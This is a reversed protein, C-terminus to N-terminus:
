ATRFDIAPRLGATSRAARYEVYYGQDRLERVKEPNGLIAYRMTGNYYVYIELM